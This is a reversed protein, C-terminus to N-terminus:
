VVTNGSVRVTTSDVVTGNVTNVAYLTVTGSPPLYMTTTTQGVEVTQTDFVSGSSTVATLKSVGRDTTANPTLTVTTTVHGTTWSDTTSVNEVVTADSGPGSVTPQLTLCGSTGVVVLLLATIAARRTVLSHM